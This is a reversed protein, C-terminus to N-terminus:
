ADVNGAATFPLRRRATVKDVRVCIPVGRDVPVTRDTTYGPTITM